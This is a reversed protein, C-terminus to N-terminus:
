ATIELLNKEPTYIVLFDGPEDKMLFGHKRALRSLIRRTSSDCNTKIHLELDESDCTRRHPKLYICAFPTIEAFDIIERLLLIAERRQV